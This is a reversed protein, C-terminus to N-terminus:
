KKRRRPFADQRQGALLKDVTAKQDEAEALQRSLEELKQTHAAIETEYSLLGSGASRKSGGELSGDNSIREGTLTVMRHAYRYKKSIAVANDFTDVVVIGGLISQFVSDYHRDYQVLDAAVGLVGKEKLVDARDIGHPKMSAVPLFTVRGYDHDKLYQIIYKVDQENETVVNQLRGGLAVEIALQLQPQVHM